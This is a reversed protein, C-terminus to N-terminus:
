ICGPTQFSAPVNPVDRRSTEAPRLGLGTLPKWHSDSAFAFDRTLNNIIMRVQKTSDNFLRLFIEFKPAKEKELVTTLIVNLFDTVNKLYSNVCTVSSEDLWCGSERTKSLWTVLELTSDVRDGVDGFSRRVGRPRGPSVRPEHTVHLRSVVKGWAVCGKLRGVTGESSLTAKM